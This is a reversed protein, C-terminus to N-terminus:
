TSTKFFELKDKLKELAKKLRGMDVDKDELLRLISSVDQKIEGIRGGMNVILGNLAKRLEEFQDKKRLNVKYHLDGGAMRGLSEEFRYLPGALRHSLFIFVLLAGLGVTVGVILSILIFGTFFYTGTSEIRLGDHLYATTVTGRSIYFFLAGILFAELLLLALFYVSFSAQFRKKIFYNKRRSRKV